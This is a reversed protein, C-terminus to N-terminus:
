RKGRKRRHADPGELVAVLLAGAWVICLVAVLAFRVWPWLEAAM